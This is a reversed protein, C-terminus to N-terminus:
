AKIASAIIQAIKILALKAEREPFGHMIKALHVIDKDEFMSRTASAGGRKSLPAGADHNELLWAADVKLTDALLQLNGASVRNTGKEYKQIQQFSIGLTKGLQEQSLREALRASRINRGVVLNTNHAADTGHRRSKKAM